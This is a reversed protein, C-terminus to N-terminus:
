RIGSGTCSASHLLQLEVLAACASSPYQTAGARRRPAPNTPRCSAGTSRAAQRQVPVADLGDVSGPQRFSPQGSRPDREYRGGAAVAIAAAAEHQRVGYRTLSILGKEAANETDARFSMSLRIM